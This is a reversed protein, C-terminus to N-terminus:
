AAGGDNFEGVGKRSLGCCVWEFGRVEGSM